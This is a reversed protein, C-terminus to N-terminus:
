AARRTALDGLLEAFSASVSAPDLGEVAARATERLARLRPVDHTIAVAAAVFGDRDNAKVRTGTSADRM